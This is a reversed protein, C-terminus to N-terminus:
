LIHCLGLPDARLHGHIVVLLLCGPHPIWCIILTSDLPLYFNALSETDQCKDQFPICDMQMFYITVTMLLSVTAELPM